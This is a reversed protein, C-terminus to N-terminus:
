KQLTPFGAFAAIAERTGIFFLETNFQCGRVPVTTPQIEKSAGAANAKM